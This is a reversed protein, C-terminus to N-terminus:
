RPFYLENGQPNFLRFIKTGLIMGHIGDMGPDGTSYDYHVPTVQGANGIWLNGSKKQELPHPPVVVDEVGTM